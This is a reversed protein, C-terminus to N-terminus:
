GRHALDGTLVCLDADAHHGLAHALVTSLRETPSLGYLPAGRDADAHHGLAHALVTSLRETPSLGYLPAGDATLHLDTLHLIKM